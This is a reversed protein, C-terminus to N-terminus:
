YSTNMMSSQKTSICTLRHYWQMYNGNCTSQWIREPETIKLLNNMHCYLLFMDSQGPLFEQRLWLVSLHQWTNAEGATSVATVCRGYCNYKYTVEHIINGEFPDIGAEKLAM